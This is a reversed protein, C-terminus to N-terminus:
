EYVDATILVAGCSPCDPEKMDKPDFRNDCYECLKITKRPKFGPFIYVTTDDMGERAFCIDKSALLRLSREAESEPMDFETMVIPVTLEGNYKGAIRTIETVLKEKNGKVMNLNVTRGLNKVQEKGVEMAENMIKRSAEQAVERGAISVQRAVESAVQKVIHDFLGFLLM